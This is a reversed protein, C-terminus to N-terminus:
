LWLNDDICDFFLLFEMVILLLLYIFKFYLMLDCGLVLIVGVNNM